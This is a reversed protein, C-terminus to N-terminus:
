NSLSKVPDALAAKGSQFSITVLAITFTILATLYFYGWELEIRFAFGDLWNKAILYSLPLSICISIFIMKIFEGSLLRIISFVGAGLVKRIGIEKLRSEATFASLGYLGLCSILISLGAFYRALVSVQQESAYLAQYDSDLFKYEFSMGPHFKKYTAELNKIAEREKGPQMKVVITSAGNNDLRFKVPQIKEHLSQFHFNKVVGIIETDNGQGKIVTGIPNELGMAEAAAENIIVESQNSGFSKSFTRGERIEIGLTEILGYNVGYSQFPIGKGNWQLVGQRGFTENIVSGIMNSAREIGPLNQIENLFAEKGESEFCVVNNKDFGLNKSQVYDIQKYLVLVSVIFIVSLSFQFVVLGKRTFQEGISNALRGKLITAPKFGSLYLAPYSGALIGTLLTIFVVTWMMETSFNVHINKHTIENFGPMLLFVLAIGIILSLFSMVISEGLYQLILVGRGVGLAKKVGVEKVRKAAKATSLNMFNICSIALIFLAIISFLRVYEIRGGSQRGNEYTSYLYNDSFRALFFRRNTLNSKSAVYRSLKQGFGDVDVGNKVTLYTSFPEPAWGPGMGMIDKLDDFSLVFDFHESSNAPIDKFVGTVICQRKIGAMEWEITNGVINDSSGFLIKAQSESIVIANKDALVSVNSGQILHYSFIRFFDGTAFKGNGKVKKSNASLTFAPFFKDPTATAIYGVEPMEQGLVESLVHPTEKGTEIGKEGDTNTMVQYLRADNEHYKDFSREDNVWFCIMLISALGCALGTLNIFFTSKHRSLNRYIIVLYHKLM